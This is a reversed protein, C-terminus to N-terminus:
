LVLRDEHRLKNFNHLREKSIDCFIMKMTGIDV